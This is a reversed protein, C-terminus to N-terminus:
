PKELWVDWMRPVRYPKFNKLDKRTAQYVGLEGIPLAYADDAVIQQFEAFAQKRKELDPETNLAKAAADIRPDDFKQWSKPGVFDGM